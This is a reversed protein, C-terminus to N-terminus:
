RAKGSRAASKAAPKSKSGAASESGSKTSSKAASKSASKSATKATKSATKSASKAASKSATKTSSKAASKSASKAPSKGATKSASKAASKSATRSASKAPSKSATKRPSAARSPRETDAATAPADDDSVQLRRKLIEMLDIIDTGEEDDEDARPAAQVVDEGSRLKAQVVKMLRETAHEQLVAPDLADELQKGIERDMRRLEAADAKVPTPLGVDEPTRLEDAFRLTEARLIGNEALIAVLYEKARMVFTAIGARGTEEMVRALLRYAKTSQGAPTLYYAREFYRPDIESADVFQRLDIDRTREPALRELEDDDVIVFRDKEIEYGRVIEDADLERDDKSTFYRRGLRTGEPSVMRLSVGGTRNAAYLAVPISVLGFTITGSWFSRTVAEQESPEIDPV